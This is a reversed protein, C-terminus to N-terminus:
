SSRGYRRKVRREWPSGEEAPGFAKPPTRPLVELPADGGEEAEGRNEQPPLRRRPAPPEPPAPRPVTPESRSALESLAHRYM